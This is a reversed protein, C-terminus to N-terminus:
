NKHTTLLYVVLIKVMQASYNKPVHPIRGNFFLSEGEKLHVIENGLHYDVSGNIMYLFEYGDTSVMERQANPALNLIAAQFAMQGVNESLISLYNFGVSDEKIQPHYDEKKRHIYLYNSQEEVGEFFFSYDVELSRIIQLLVPLSPITRGNEIKSLLGKSIGAKDAVDILKYNKEIRIERVKKGIVLLTNNDM